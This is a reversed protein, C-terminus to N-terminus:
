SRCLAVSVAVVVAVVCRVMQIGQTVPAVVGNREQSLLLHVGRFLRQNEVVDIIEHDRDLQHLLVIKV